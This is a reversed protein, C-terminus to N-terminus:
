SGNILAGGHCCGASLTPVENRIRGIAHDSGDGVGGLRLRSDVREEAGSEVPLVDVDEVALLIQLTEIRCPGLMSEERLKLPRQYARELEFLELVERVV